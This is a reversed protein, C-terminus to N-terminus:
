YCYVRLRAQVPVMRPKIPLSAIGQVLKNRTAEKFQEREGESADKQPESLPIEIECRLGEPAFVLDVAGGLQHPILNRFVVYHWLEDSEPRSTQM